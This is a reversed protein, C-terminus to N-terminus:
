INSKLSNVLGSLMKGVDEYAAYLQDYKERSMYRLDVSLDLLVSIEASSGIAMMLFRKFESQSERKAYGEAINLPVSMAARRLQSTMAYMEEKPFQKTAEYVAVVLKYSKEYVKLERYGAM